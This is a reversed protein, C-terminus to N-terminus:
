RTYLCKCEKNSKGIPPKIEINNKNITYTTAVHTEAPGYHNHIITGDEIVKKISDTIILQEGATIIHKLPLKNNKVLESETLIELYRPPIFLIDIKNETICNLLKNSDKKDEDKIIYLTSGTLFASFIEQYSVDFSLTAFQLIKSNKEFKIEKTYIENEILNIM